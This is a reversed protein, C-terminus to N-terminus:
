RLRDLNSTRAVTTRRRTLGGFRARREKERTEGRSRQGGGWRFGKSVQQKVERPKNTKDEMGEAKM